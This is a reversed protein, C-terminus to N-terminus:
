TTINHIIPLNIWIMHIILYFVFLEMIQLSFFM